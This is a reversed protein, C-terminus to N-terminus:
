YIEARRAPWEDPSTLRTGNDRVFPDPLKGLLKYETIELQGERVPDTINM